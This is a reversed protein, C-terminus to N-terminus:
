PALGVIARETALDSPSFSGIPLKGQEYLAALDGLTVDPAWKGDPQAALDVGGPNAVYLSLAASILGHSGQEITAQNRAATSLDAAQYAALGVLLAAAGMVWVRRNRALRTLAVACLPLLLVVLVYMYRSARGSGLSWEARSYATMFAFLAAAATLILAPSLREVKTGSRGLRVLWVLLAILVIAGIGFVPFISQWGLLLMVGLFEPVRVFIKEVGLGGTDPNNPDGIAYVAYWTLYVAACAIAYTIAKRGGQRHAILAATAFILPIATGSWTLAFVSLAIIWVLRRRSLTAADALLFALLGLALATLFGVQFGWLINEAGSGLVVLVAVATTAIWANARARLTIRWVLHAAAVHALTVALAFPVYSGLGFVDRFAHFLLLPSTSWHGVHPEFLGPGDPKLFEWEDLVFWQDRQLRMVYAFGVVLSAVHWAVPARLIRLARQRATAVGTPANTPM